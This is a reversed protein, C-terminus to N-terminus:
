ICKVFFERKNELNKSALYKRIAEEM